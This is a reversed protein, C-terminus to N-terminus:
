RFCYLGPSDESAPDEFLLGTKKVQVPRGLGDTFSYTEINSNYVSDYHLTRAYPIEAEPHYEFAITYPRGSALEYPGTLTVMRGCDDFSYKMKQNNRDTVEVPM